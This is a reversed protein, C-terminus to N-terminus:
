KPPNKSLTVTAPKKGVESISTVYYRCRGKHLYDVEVADGCAYGGSMPKSIPREQVVLTIWTKGENTWVPGTVGLMRGDCVEFREGETLTISEAQTM